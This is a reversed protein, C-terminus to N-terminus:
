LQLPHAEDSIADESHIQMHWKAIPIIARMGKLSMPLSNLMLIQPCQEVLINGAHLDRHEFKLVHEAIALSLAIQHFISYCERGNKIQSFINKMKIKQFNGLEPKAKKFADWADLLESPFCRMTEFAVCITVGNSKTTNNRSGNSGVRALQNSRTRNLNVHVGGM